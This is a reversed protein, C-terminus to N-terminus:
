YYRKIIASYIGPHLEKSISTRDVLLRKKLQQVQKSPYFMAALALLLLSVAACYLSPVAYCVTAVILTALFSIKSEHLRHLITDILRYIALPFVFAGTILTAISPDCM